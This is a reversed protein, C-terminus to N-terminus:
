RDGAQDLAPSRRNKDGSQLEQRNDSTSLPGCSAVATSTRRNSPATIRRTHASTAPLKKRILQFYKLIQLNINQDGARFFDYRTHGRPCTPESPGSPYLRAEEVSSTAMGAARTLRVSVAKVM